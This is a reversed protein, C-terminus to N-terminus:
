GVCHALDTYLSRLRGSPAIDLESALVQKYQNYQRIASANNGMSRYSSMIAYHMDERLPDLAVAQRAWSVAQSWNQQNQHFRILRDMADLLMQAHAERHEACWDDFLGVCFIGQCEKVADALLRAEDLTMAEDSIFEVANVADALRWCDADVQDCDLGILCDAHTVVAPGEPSEAEDLVSRLRWLSKSLQARAQRESLDPWLAACIAERHVLHGRNILLFLSLARARDTRLCITTGSRDSIRLGGFTAVQLRQQQKM